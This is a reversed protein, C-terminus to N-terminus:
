REDDGRWVGSAGRLGFSGGFRERRCCCERGGVFFSRFFFVWVDMVHMFSAGWRGCSFLAASHSPILSEVCVPADAGVHLKLKVLVLAGGCRISTREVGSMAEWAWQAGGGMRQVQLVTRARRQGEVALGLASNV